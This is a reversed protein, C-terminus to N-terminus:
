SLCILNPDLFKLDSDVIKEQIWIPMFGAGVWKQQQKKKLGSNLDLEFLKSDAEPNSDLLMGWMKCNYRLRYKVFDQFFSWWTEFGLQCGSVSSGPRSLYWSREKYFTLSMKQKILM